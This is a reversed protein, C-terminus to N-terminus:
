EEFSEMALRSAAVSYINKSGESDEKLLDLYDIASGSPFKCTLIDMAKGIGVKKALEQRLSYNEHVTTYGWIEFASLSLYLIQEIRNNTDKLNGIYLFSSGESSPGTVYTKMMEIVDEEPAFREKLSKMDDETKGKSLIWINDALNVINKNFDDLQQSALAINVLFKRGERVDLEVQDRVSPSASTRHFEDMCLKKPVTAEAQLRETHYDKYKDPVQPITDTEKQYFDKCLLYRGIMYMISTKKNAQPSGKPTVESLDLSVVRAHSLDVSSPRALIPFDNVISMSMQKVYDMILEDSGHIVAGKFVGKINNSNTIVTTIDNLTPMAHRQAARALKYEERDYLYDFIQWWSTYQSIECDEKELYNDIDPETGIQFINPNNEDSFYDYMEDVLVGLFEPLRVIPKDSGAPTFATVLFNILFERDLSLPARCGLPTDFPNIDNSTDTKSMKLKMAVFQDRMSEPMMSALFEVFSQSSFGIDLMALRPLMVNRPNM